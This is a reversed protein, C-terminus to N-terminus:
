GVQVEVQSTARHSVRDIQALNLAATDCAGVKDLGVVSRARLVGVVRGDGLALGDVDELSVSVAEADIGVRARTTAAVRNRLTAVVHLLM